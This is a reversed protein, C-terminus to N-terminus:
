SGCRSACWPAPMPCSPMSGASVILVSKVAARTSAEDSVDAEIALVNRLRAPFARRLGSKPLDVAGVRWGDNQLQQAIARGIGRAAGTVIAVRAPAM